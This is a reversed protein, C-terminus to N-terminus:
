VSGWKNALYARIQVDEDSGYAIYRNVIILAHHSVVGAPNALSELYRGICFNATTIADGKAGACATPGGTTSAQSSRVNSGDWRAVVCVPAGTTPDQSVQAARNTNTGTESIYFGSRSTTGDNIVQAWVNGGAATSWLGWVGYQSTATGSSQGVWYVTAGTGPELTAPGKPITMYRATDDMQVAALGGVTTYLPQNGGTAQAANNGNGSRDAWASVRSSSESVGYDAELWLGLSALDAPSWETSDVPTYHLLYDLVELDVEIGDLGYSTVAHVLAMRNHMARGRDTIRVVDGPEITELDVVDGVLSVLRRPFGLRAAHEQVVLEATAQDHVLRTEIAAGVREGYRSRSAAAVVHGIESRASDPSLAGTVTIERTPSTGHDPAFRLTVTNAIDDDTYSVAGARAVRVMPPGTTEEIERWSVVDPDRDPVVLHMVADEPRPTYNLAEYWIGNASTRRVLPILAGIEQEIFRRPDEIRDTIAFDLLYRDLRGRAAAMRGQDVALGSWRLLAQIIEGARRMPGTRDENRVGGGDDWRFWYEKGPAFRVTTNKGTYAGPSVYAYRNGLNDTGTAVTLSQIAFGRGLITVTDDHHLYGRVTTADYSTGDPVWGIVIQSGSYVAAGGSHQFLYGPTAYSARNILSGWTADPRYGPQGFVIPYVAGIREPDPEYGATVPTTAGSIEATRPPIPQPSQALWRVSVSLEGDEDDYEADYVEGDLLVRADELAQGELWRRLRARSGHPAVELVSPWGDRTGQVDASLALTASTDGSARVTFTLGGLGGVYVYDAGSADEVVVDVDAARYTVGGIEVEALWHVRGEGALVEAHAISTRASM